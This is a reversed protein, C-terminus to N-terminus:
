IPGNHFWYQMAFGEFIQVTGNNSKMYPDFNGPLINKEQTISGLFTFTKTGQPAPTLSAYKYYTNFGKCVDLGGDM